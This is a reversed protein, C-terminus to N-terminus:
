KAEKKGVKTNKYFNWFINWSWVEGEFWRFNEPCTILNENITREKLALSIYFKNISDLLLMTSSDSLFSDMKNVSSSAATYSLCILNHPTSAWCLDTTSIARSLHSEECFTGSISIKRKDFIKLCYFTLCVYWTKQRKTKLNCNSDILM